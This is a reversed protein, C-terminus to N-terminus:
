SKSYYENHTIWRGSSGGSAGSDGPEPEHYGEKGVGAPTSVGHEGAIQL